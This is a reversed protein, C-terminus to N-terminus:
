WKAKKPRWSKPKNM